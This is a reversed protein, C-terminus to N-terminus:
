KTKPVERHAPIWSSSCIKHPFCIQFFFILKEHRFDIKLIKFDFFTQSKKEFFIIKRFMSIKLSFINKPFNKSFDFNKSFLDSFITENFIEINRFIIKQRFFIEFIKRNWFKQFDIKTMFFYYKEELNKKM